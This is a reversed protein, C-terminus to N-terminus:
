KKEGQEEDSELYCVGDTKKSSRQSCYITLLHHEKRKLTETSKKKKKKKKILPRRAHKQKFKSFVVFIFSSLRFGFSLETVNFLIM